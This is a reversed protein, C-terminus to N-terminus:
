RAICDCPALVTSCIMLINFKLESKALKLRSGTETILEEEDSPLLSEEKEIPRSDTSTVVKISYYKEDVAQKAKALNPKTTGRIM